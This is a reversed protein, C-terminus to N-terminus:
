KSVIEQLLYVILNILLYATMLILGLAMAKVFDGRSTFNMIATTMVNTKYIIAGGVMSVAGVEAIARAFALCYTSILQYKCENMTLTFLRFRSLGLGSTNERISPAQHNLFTETQCFVLPIILIVQAVAMGNVTFLLKLHGLPGVGSFLVYCFLGCVVPPLGMLTRNFVILPRKGPFDSVAAWVGMPVGILMAIISSTLTMRLTVYVVSQLEADWNLILQIARFFTTQM